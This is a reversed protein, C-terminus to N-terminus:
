RFHGSIRRCLIRIRRKEVPYKPFDLSASQCKRPKTHYYIPYNIYLSPDDIHNLGSRMVAALQTDAVGALLDGNAAPQLVDTFHAGVKGETHDAIEIAGGLHDNFIGFHHLDDLADVLLGGDGDGTQDPLTLAFVGLDGGALDFNDGGLDLDQALATVVLQGKLDVLGLVGVLVDTQLVTVQVQPVRGHLLVDDQAALHNGLQAPEHGLFAEQLDGGGDEGSGGRLTGTVVQNGGTVM